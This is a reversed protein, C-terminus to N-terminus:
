KRQKSLTYIKRYLGNYLATDENEVTAGIKAFHAAGRGMRRGRATHQDLVFDHLARAPASDDYLATVQRDSYAVPQPVNHAFDVDRFCYLAPWIYFLLADRHRQKGMSTYGFHRFYDFCVNLTALMRKRWQPLPPAADRHWLQAGREAYRTFIDFAVFMPHAEARGPSPGISRKAVSICKEQTLRLLDAMFRFGLDSKSRIAEILGDAIGRVYHSDGPLLPYVSEGSFHPDILLTAEYVACLEEDVLALERAADNFYVAKIDSILRQKPALVLLQVMSLMARRRTQHDCAPLHARNAEFQRYHKDFQAALQPSTIGATEEPLIVRLRNVTNTVLARADPLASFRELEVAVYLASDLMGRRVYKQLASLLDDKAHGHFSISQRFAYRM